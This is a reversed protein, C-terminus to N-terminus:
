YFDNSKHSTLKTQHTIIDTSTLVEEEAYFLDNYGKLM